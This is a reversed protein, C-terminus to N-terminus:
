RCYELQGDIGPDRSECPYCTLIFPVSQFFTDNERLRSDLITLLKM